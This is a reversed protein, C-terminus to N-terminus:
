RSAYGHDEFFRYRAGNGRCTSLYGTMSEQGGSGSWCTYGPPDPSNSCRNDACGHDRATEYVGQQFASMVRKAQRCNGGVRYVKWSELYSHRNTHVRVAGCFTGRSTAAAGTPVVAM